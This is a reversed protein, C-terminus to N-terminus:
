FLKPPIDLKVLSQSLCKLQTTDNVDIMTLQHGEKAYTAQNSKVIV